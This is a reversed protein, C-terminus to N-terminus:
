PMKKVMGSGVCVSGMCGDVNVCVYGDWWWEDVHGCVCM